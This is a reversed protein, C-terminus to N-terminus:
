YLPEEQTVKDIGMAVATPSLLCLLWFVVEAAGSLYVQLYYLASLM